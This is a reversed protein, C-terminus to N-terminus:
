AGASRREFWALLKEMEVGYAIFVVGVVVITLPYTSWTTATVGGGLSEFVLSGVFLVIGLTVGHAVRPSRAVRRMAFLVVGGVVGVVMGLTMVEFIGRGSLNMEVGVALAILATALRGVLGLIMIGSVAGAVVALLIGRRM